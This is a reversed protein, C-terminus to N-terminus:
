RFFFVDGRLFDGLFRSLEKPLLLSPPEGAVGDLDGKAEFLFRVGDGRLLERFDCEARGVPASLSGDGM